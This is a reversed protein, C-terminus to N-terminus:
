PSALVALVAIWLEYRRRWTWLTIWVSALALILIYNGSQPPIVLGSLAAVSMIWGPRKVSDSLGSEKWMWASWGLTGIVILTALWAPKVLGPPWVPSSYGFYAVVQRLLDGEWPGIWARTLLWM